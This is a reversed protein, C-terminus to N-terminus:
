QMVGLYWASDGAKIAHAMSFQGLTVKEVAGSYGNRYLYCGSPATIELNGRSLNIFIIDQGVLAQSSLSITKSTVDAGNRGTKVYLCGDVLNEDITRNLSRLNSIYSGGKIYTIGELYAYGNVNLRNPMMSISNQSNKLYVIPTKEAGTSGIIPSQSSIGFFMETNEYNTTNGSIHLGAYQYLFNNSVTTNNSIKVDALDTYFIANYLTANHAVIDGNNAVTFPATTLDANSIEGAWIRVDGKSSVKGNLPSSEDIAKSSTMGAVIKQNDFIVLENSSLEKIFAKNAIVLDAVINPSITFASFYSALDPTTQWKNADGTETNVCAYYMNEYLVVDQYFIGDEADRKGDYYKKGSVWAGTMRLPAGKFTQGSSGNQGDKGDKGDKGSASVPISISTLYAGNTNYAYVTIVSAKAQVTTNTAVIWHDTSYQLGTRGDSNLQMYMTADSNSVESQAGNAENKYLKADCSMQLSFAQETPVYTLSINSLQISYSVGNLGNIGSKVIPVYESLNIAGNTAKFLMGTGGETTIQDATVNKWTQGDDISYTFQWGSNNSPTINTINSGDSKAIYVSILNPYMTGDQYNIASASVKIDYSIANDGPSGPDGNDGKDGKQGDAGRVLGFLQIEAQRLQSSISSLKPKGVLTIKYYVGNDFSLSDEPISIKIENGDIKFYKSIDSSYDNGASDKFSDVALAFDISSGDNYMHVTSSSEFKKNKNQQTLYLYKNEGIVDIILASAIGDKSYYGWLAPASYSHWYPAKGEGDSYKKRVSVWQKYGAGFKELDQPDDTWSSGYKIYENNQFGEDNTWQEPLDTVPAVLAVYYIYEVGDGDMGNQGYHSWVFPESWMTSWKGKVNLVYSCYEYPVDKTVGSPHDNWGSPITPIGDVVTVTGPNSPKEGNISSKYIFNIGSGDEGATGTGNEGSAGTLCIPDMYSGYLGEGNIYVQTMWIYQGAEANPSYDVWGSGEQPAKNDAPKDPAVTNSGTVKFYPKYYGYTTPDIGSGGQGGTPIKITGGNELTIVKDNIELKALSGRKLYKDLEQKLYEDDIGGGSETSIVNTSFQGGNKQTLIIKNGRSTFEQISYDLGGEGNLIKQIESKTYYSNPDFKNYGDTSVYSTKADNKTLYKSLDIANISDDVYSKKAYEPLNANDLAKNIKKDVDILIEQKLTGNDGITSNIQDQLDKVSDNSAKNNWSEREKETIHVDNNNTHNYLKSYISAYYQDMKMDLEGVPNNRHIMEPEKHFDVM